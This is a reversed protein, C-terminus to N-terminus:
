KEGEKKLKTIQGKLSANEKKLVNIEQKLEETGSQKLEELESVVKNYEAVSVTGGGTAKEIIEGDESIQDYGQNLYSTLRGAPINLVKNRKRVKVTDSM